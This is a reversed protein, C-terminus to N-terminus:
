IPLALVIGCLTLPLAWLMGLTTAVRSLLRRLTENRVIRHMIKDPRTRMNWDRQGTHDLWQISLWLMHYATKGSNEKLFIWRLQQDITVAHPIFYPHRHASKVIQGPQTFLHRQQRMERHAFIGM